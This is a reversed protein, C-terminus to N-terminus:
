LLIRTANLSRQRRAQWLIPLFYFTADGMFNLIQYSQDSSAVLKFAVLLSLVAKLMGAATLAPLIPTFIGSLTDIATAM